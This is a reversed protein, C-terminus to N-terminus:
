VQGDKGVARVRLSHIGPSADWHYRWQVWTDNSIAEGLETVNWDGGDIQLEVREIGVQQYWAVGGLYRPGPGLDTQGSAPLDIRSMLK